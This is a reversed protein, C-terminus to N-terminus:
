RIYDAELTYPIGSPDQPDVQFRGGVGIQHTTYSTELDGQLVIRMKETIKPNQICFPCDGVTPCLIFEKIGTQQRRAQMFGKVYVRKDQMDLATQPIVESPNGPDPQLTDYTIWEYGYPKESTRVFILWGCAIAGLGIALGLGLRAVGLGTLETPTEQIRRIARWSLAIGLLPVLVLTWHLIAVLSLAGFVFGVVAMPCLARYPSTPTTEPTNFDLDSPM